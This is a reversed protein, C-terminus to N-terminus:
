KKEEILWEMTISKKVGIEKPNFDIDPQQNGAKSMAIDGSNLRNEQVLDSEYFRGMDNNNDLYDRRESVNLDNTHIIKKEIGNKILITMAQDIAKVLKDQCESFKDAKVKVTINETVIEPTQKLIAAGMVLLSNEKHISTTQGTLPHDKINIDSQQIVGYRNEIGLKKDEKLMREVHLSDLQVATNCDNLKFLLNKRYTKITEDIWM